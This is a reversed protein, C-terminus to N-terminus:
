ERIMEIYKKAQDPLDQMDFLSESGLIIGKLPTRTEHNLINLETTKLQDVEEIRNLKSFVELKAVSQDEIFPKTIYDDTGASYDKLRNGKM